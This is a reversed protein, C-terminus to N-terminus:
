RADERLRRQLAVQLRRNRIRRRREELMRTYSGM